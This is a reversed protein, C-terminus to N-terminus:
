RAADKKKKASMFRAFPEIAKAVKADTKAVASAVRYLELLDRWVDSALLLRTEELLELQKRLPAIHADIKGVAALKERVKAPDINASALAKAHQAKAALLGEVHAEFGVRPKALAQLEETTLDVLPPLGENTKTQKKNTVM